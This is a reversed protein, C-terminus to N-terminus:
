SAVGRQQPPIPCSRGPAGSIQESSAQLSGKEPRPVRSRRQLPTNGDLAFDIYMTQRPEIRGSEM